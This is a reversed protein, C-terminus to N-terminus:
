EGTKKAPSRREIPSRYVTGEKNAEQKLLRIHKRLGKPLRKGENMKSKKDTMSNSRFKYLGNLPELEVLM